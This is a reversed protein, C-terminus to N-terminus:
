RTPTVIAKRPIAFVVRAIALVQKSTLVRHGRGTGIWVKGSSLSETWTWLAVSVRKGSGEVASVHSVGGYGMSEHVLTMLDVDSLGHVQAVGWRRELDTSMNFSRVRAWVALQNQLAESLYLGNVEGWLRGQRQSPVVPPAFLPVPHVQALTPAARNAASLALLEALTMVGPPGACQTGARASRPRGPAQTAATPAAYRTLFDNLLGM